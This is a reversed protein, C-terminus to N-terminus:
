PAGYISYGRKAGGGYRMHLPTLFHRRRTQCLFRAFFSPRARGNQHRHERRGNKHEKAGDCMSTTCGSCCCYRIAEDAEGGYLDRAGKMRANSDESKFRSKVAVKFHSLTDAVYDYRLGPLLVLRGIRHLRVTSSYHQPPTTKTLIASINNGDVKM